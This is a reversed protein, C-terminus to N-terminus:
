LCYEVQPTQKNDYKNHVYRIINYYITICVARITDYGSYLETHQHRHMTVVM